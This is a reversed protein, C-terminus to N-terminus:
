NRGTLLAAFANLYNLAHLRTSMQSRYCSNYKMLHRFLDLRGPPSLAFQSTQQYLIWRDLSLKESGRELDFGNKLLWSRMGDILIQLMAIRERAREPPISVESSYFLNGGHLRYVALAEDIAVIPALFIVLAGLYGDAQIRLGEPIPLIRNLATRRFALSSTPRPSYAFLARLDHPIFGSLPTFEDLTTEQSSETLNLLRHYVMGANPNQQFRSAVSRLKQPLWYDDADLLAVIDGQARSIGLNFASAQGGNEKQILQVRPVYKRLRDATDDTSGDDVVLIEVAEMPFDQSLVSEVAQEIFRGYNYADILVTIDPRNM